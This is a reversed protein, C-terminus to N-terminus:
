SFLDVVIWQVGAIGFDMWGEWRCAVPSSSGTPHYWKTPHLGTM